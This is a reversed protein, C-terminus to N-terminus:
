YFVIEKLDQCSIYRKTLLVLRFLIISKLIIYNRVVMYKLNQRVLIMGAFLLLNMHSESRGEFSNSCYYYRNSVSIINLIMISFRFNTYKSLKLPRDSVKGYWTGEDSNYQEQDEAHTVSVNSFWEKGQFEETTRLIKGSELRVSDYIKISFDDHESDQSSTDLFTDLTSIIQSLGEIFNQHPPNQSKKLSKIKSDIADLSLEWLIKGFGETKRHVIKRAAPTL